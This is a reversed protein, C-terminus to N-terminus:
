RGGDPAALAPGPMKASPTVRVEVAAAVERAVERGTGAFALLRSQRPGTTSLEDTVPGEPRERKSFARAFEAGDGDGDWVLDWVLVRQDGNRLLTVRDGDWGAAADGTFRMGMLSFANMKAQLLSQPVLHVLLEGLVDTHEVQWGAPLAQIVHEVEQPLDLQAEDWYKAPHLIQETSLPLHEFARQLDARDYTGAPNLRDSRGLFAQGGLYLAFLPQWVLRPVGSLSAPDSRKVFEMLSAPDISAQNAAMWQTMTVQASGECIAHHAYLWDTRDRRALDAAKLDFHQDDLAHALEHAMILRVLDPSLGEMVYFTKSFPDYFGGVQDALVKEQVAVLDMDWPICQLLRAVWEDKAQRGKGMLQEDMAHVYQLFADKDAYRARIPTRVELGRLRSVELVQTALRDM